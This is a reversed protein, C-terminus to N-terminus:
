SVDSLTPATKDIVVTVVDSDSTNGAIDTVVVKYQYSGEPLAATTFLHSAGTLVVKDEVLLNSPNGSAWVMLTASHADGLTSVSIKLADNNTLNDDAEFGSDNELSTTATPAVSDLTFSGEVESQNGAV